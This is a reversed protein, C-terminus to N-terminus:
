GLPLEIEEVKEPDLRVIEGRPLTLTYVGLADKYAVRAPLNRYTELARCLRDMSGQTELSAAPPLLVALIEGLETTNVKQIPVKM